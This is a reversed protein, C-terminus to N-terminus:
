ASWGSYLQGAEIVFNAAAAVIAPLSISQILCLEDGAAASSLNLQISRITPAGFLTAGEIINSAILTWTTSDATAQKKVVFTRVGRTAGIDISSRALFTLDLKTFEFPRRFPQRILTIGPNQNPSLTSVFHNGFITDGDVAEFGFITKVLTDAGFDYNCFVKGPLMFVPKDVLSIISDFYKIWEGNMYQLWNHHQRSPKVNLPVDGTNQEGASPQVRNNIGSTPDNVINKAWEPIITPKAM